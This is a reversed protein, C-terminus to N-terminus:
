LTYIKGAPPLSLGPVWVNAALGLSLPGSDPGTNLLFTQGAAVLKQEGANVSVAVDALFPQYSTVPIQQGSSKEWLQTTALLVRPTLTVERSTYLPSSQLQAEEVVSLVWEHSTAILVDSDDILPTFYCTDTVLQNCDPKM